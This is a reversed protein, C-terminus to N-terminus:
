NDGQTYILPHKSTEFRARVERYHQDSCPRWFIDGVHIVSSLDTANMHKLVVRYQWEEHTYYPADGLVAFSFTNPPNPTTPPPGATAFVFVAIAAIILIPVLRRM